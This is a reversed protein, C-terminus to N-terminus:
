DGGVWGEEFAQREAELLLTPLDPPGLLQNPKHNPTTLLPLAALNNSPPNLPPPLPDRPLRPLPHIPLHSPRHRPLQLLKHQPHHRLHGFITLFM